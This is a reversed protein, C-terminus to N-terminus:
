KSAIWRPRAGSGRQDRRPDHSCLSSEISVVNMFHIAPAASSALRESSIKRPSWGGSSNATSRNRTAAPAATTTNWAAAILSYRQINAKPATAHTNLGTTGIPNEAPTAITRFMEVNSRNPNENLSSLVGGRSVMAEMVSRVGPLSDNHPPSFLLTRVREGEVM